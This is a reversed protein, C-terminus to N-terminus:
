LQAEQRKWNEETKPVWSGCKGQTAWRVHNRIKNTTCTCFGPENLKNLEFYDCGHCVKRNDYTHEIIM